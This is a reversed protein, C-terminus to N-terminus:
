LGRGRARQLQALIELRSGKLGARRAKDVATKGYRTLAANPSSMPRIAQFIRVSDRKKM